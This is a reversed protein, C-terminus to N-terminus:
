IKQCDYDDTIYLSDTATGATHLIRGNFIITLHYQKEGGSRKKAKTELYAIFYDDTQFTIKLNEEFKHNPNSKNKLTKMHVSDNKWELLMDIGENEELGACYYKSGVGALAM